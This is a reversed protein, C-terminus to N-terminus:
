DRMIWHMLNWAALGLARLAEDGCKTREVEDFSAQLRSRESLGQPEGDGDYEMMCSYASHHGMHSDILRWGAAEMEEVDHHRVYRVYTETM